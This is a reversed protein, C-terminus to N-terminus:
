RFRGPPPWIAPYRIAALAAEPRSPEVVGVDLVPFKAYWDRAAVHDAAFYNVTSLGRLPSTAAMHQAEQDDGSGSRSADREGTNRRQESCVVGRDRTRRAAEVTSPDKAHPTSLRNGPPDVDLPRPADVGQAVEPQVDVHGGVPVDDDDPGSAIPLPSRRDTRPSRRIAQM